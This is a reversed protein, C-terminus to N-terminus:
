AKLPTSDPQNTDHTALDVVRTLQNLIICTMEINFVQRVQTQIPEQTYKIHHMGLQSMLLNNLIAVPITSAVTLASQILMAGLDKWYSVTKSDLSATAEQQQSSTLFWQVIRDITIAFPIKFLEHSMNYVAHGLRNQPHVAYGVIGETTIKTVYPTLHQITM